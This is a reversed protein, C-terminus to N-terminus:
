TFKLFYSDGNEIGYIRDPRSTKVRNVVNEQLNRLVNPIHTKRADDNLLSYIHISDGRNIFGDRDNFFTLGSPSDIFQYNTLIFRDHRAMRNEPSIIFWLKYKKGGLTSKLFENCYNFLRDFNRNDEDWWDSKEKDREHITTGIIINVKNSVKSFLQQILEEFNKNLYAELNFSRDEPSFLYPENIILESFPLLYDDFSSYSRFNRGITLLKNGSYIDRNLNLQNYVEIEDGLGALLLGNKQKAIEIRESDNSWLVSSKNSFLEQLNTKFKPCLFAEEEKRYNFKLNGVTLDKALEVFLPNEFAEEESECFIIESERKLMQNVNVFNKSEREWSFVEAMNEINSYIPIRDM